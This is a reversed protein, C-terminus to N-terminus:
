IKNMNEESDKKITLVYELSLLYPEDNYDDEVICWEKFVHLVTTEDQYENLFKYGDLSIKTTEM